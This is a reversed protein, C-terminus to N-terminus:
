KEIEAWAYDAWTWDSRDVKKKAKEFNVVDAAKRKGNVAMYNDAFSKGTKINSTSLSSVTVAMVAAVIGGRAALKGARKIKQKAASQNENKSARKKGAPTLTGDKNQYRRM